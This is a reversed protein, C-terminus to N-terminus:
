ASRRRRATAEGHLCGCASERAMHLRPRPPTPSDTPFGRTFIGSAAPDDWGDDFLFSDLTVGRKVKMETGFAKIRDLVGAEDYHNFYGLDYWSNYHLFTRFPHARQDEVYELFGRRLQGEPTARDRVLVGAIAGRAGATAAAVLLARAFRGRQDPLASARIGPLVHRVAVPSGKVTGVAKAGPADFDWLVIDRLPFDRDGAIVAVEQRVYRSDDLLIARWTITAGTEADRFGATM